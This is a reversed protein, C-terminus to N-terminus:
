SSAMTVYSRIILVHRYIDLVEGERRRILIVNNSMLIMGSIQIIRDTVEVFFLLHM